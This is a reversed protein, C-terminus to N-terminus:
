PSKRAVMHEGLYRVLDTKSVTGLFEWTRSDHVVPLRESSLELAFRVVEDVTMDLTLARSDAEVLEGATAEPPYARPTWRGIVGIWRGESDVVQLHNYSTHSFLDRLRASPTDSPVTQEPPRILKELSFPEGGKVAVTKKVDLADAYISRGKRYVEAVYHGVICALMLPLVVSYQRTLEFVMLISMLPAHTTGALFAGMGVAAYGMPPGTYAPFAAHFSTGLLSGLAAGCFLTPTFVGGVAGSGVNATTAVIKAILVLLLSGWTWPNHLISNIVSYGNGWVRPDVVSVLGVALGGLGLRLPVPLGLRLFARQSRELAWLFLPALHGAVFGLLTYLLLEWGSVIQFNPLAFVPAYGILHHLTANAVVASVIIPGISWLDISGLVIEAVFVTAALPANYASAMGASAGCAVLLRRSPRRFPGIRGLISGVMASLQVMAGERGISGGSGISLLSSGSKVLSARVSIFGDGVAVAEMYDTTQRGRALRMGYYLVLGALLGGAAPVWFRHLPPLSTSAEVFGGTQGMICWEVLRIARRFGATIFAGLFGILGPWLLVGALETLQLRDRCWQWGASHRM